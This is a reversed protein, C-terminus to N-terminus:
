RTAAAAPSSAWADIEVKLAPAALGAVVLLTMCPAHDGLRERLIATRRKPDIPETLYFILKVIDTTSMGADEVNHIVNVLALDFQEAPDLPVQGIATMGVQGSLLLLRESGDL